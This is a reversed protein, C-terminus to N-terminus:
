LVEVSVTIIEYLYTIGGLPIRDILSGQDYSLTNWYPKNSRHAHLIAAIDAEMDDLRDEADAETWSFDPESFPVYVEIAFMFTTRGGKFTFPPRVVSAGTVTIAFRINDPIDALQYDYVAMDADASYRSNNLILQALAKRADKRNPLTM